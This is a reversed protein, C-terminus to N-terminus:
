AADKALRAGPVDGSPKNAKKWLGTAGRAFSLLRLELGAGDGPIFEPENRRHYPHETSYVRPSKGKNWL